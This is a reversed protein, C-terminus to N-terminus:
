IVKMNDNNKNCNDIEMREGDIGMSIPIAYDTEEDNLIKYLENDSIDEPGKINDSTCINM